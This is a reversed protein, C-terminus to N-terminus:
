LQRRALLASLLLVSIRSVGYLIDKLGIGAAYRLKGVASARAPIARAGASGGAATNATRAGGNSALSNISGQIDRLVVLVDQVISDCQVSVGRIPVCSARANTSVNHSM